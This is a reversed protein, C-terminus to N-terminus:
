GNLIDNESMQGAYLAFDHITGTMPAPTGAVTGSGLVVGGRAIWPTGVTVEFSEGDKRVPAGNEYFRLTGAADYTVVLTNVALPAEARWEAVTVDASVSDAFPRSFRWVPGSDTPVFALSWADTNTGAQRAVVQPASVDNIAVDVKVTYAGTSDIVPKPTSASAAGSPGVVLAGASFADGQVGNLTLAGDFVEDAAQGAAAPDEMRWRGAAAAVPNDNVRPAALTAIDASPLVTQYVRLDDVSARMCRFARGSWKDCGVWLGTGAWPTGSFKLTGQPRGNVFLRMKNTARDYTAAVHSWVGSPRGSVSAISQKSSSADKPYRGARWKGDARDWWVSLASVNQGPSSFVTALSAEKDLRVWAAVSFSKTTDIVAPGATAPGYGRGDFRIAGALRGRASWGAAPGLTLPAPVSGTSAASEGSQEDLTWLGTPRIPGVLFAYTSDPSPVGSSDIAQVVLRHLGEDARYPPLTTTGSADAAVRGSDGGTPGQFNYALTLGPTAVAKFTFSRGAHPNEPCSTPEQPTACEQVGPEAVITPAPPPAVAAVPPALTAASVVATLM